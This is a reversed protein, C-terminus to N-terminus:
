KQGEKFDSKSASLIYYFGGFCEEYDVTDCKSRIYAAADRSLDIAGLRSMWEMMPNLFTYPTRSATKMGIMAFRGQLKLLSFMKDIAAEYEPMIELAFTCLVADFLFGPEYDTISAEVLEVNTWRHGQARREAMKLVGPSLDVGVLKGDDGLYGEIVKFNLGPGCAVDLVVSDGTLSLFAIARKRYISHETARGFLGDLNWFLSAWPSLSFKDYLARVADNDVTM